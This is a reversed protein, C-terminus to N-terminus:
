YQSGGGVSFSYTLRAAIVNDDVKVKYPNGAQNQDAFSYRYQFGLRAGTDALPMDAMVGVTPSTNSVDFAPFAYGNYNQTGHMKHYDVGVTPGIRFGGFDYLLGIDGGVNFMSSSEAIAGAMVNANGVSWAARVQGL